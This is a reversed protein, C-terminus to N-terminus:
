PSPPSETQLKKKNFMKSFRDVRKNMQSHLQLLFVRDVGKDYQPAFNLHLVETLSSNLIPTKKNTTTFLPPINVSPINDTHNTVTRLQFIFHTCQVTYRTAPSPSM